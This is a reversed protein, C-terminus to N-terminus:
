GLSVMIDEDAVTSGDDKKPKDTGFVSPYLEVLNLGGSYTPNQGNYGAVSGNVEENFKSLNMYENYAGSIDAVPMGDVASQIDDSTQANKIADEIAKGDIGDLEDIKSQESDIKKTIKIIKDQIKKKIEDITDQTMIEYEARDSEKVFVKGDNV